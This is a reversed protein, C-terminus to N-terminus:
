AFSLTKILSREFRVIGGRRLSRPLRKRFTRPNIGLMKASEDSTLLEDRGDLMRNIVTPSCGYAEAVDEIRINPNHDDTWYVNERGAIARLITRPHCRFVSAMEELLTTQRVM